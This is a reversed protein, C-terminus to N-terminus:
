AVYIPIMRWWWFQRTTAACRRRIARMDMKLGLEAAPLEITPLYISFLTGQGEESEVGIYGHHQGIIGHVMSLGLGTGKGIEKTTFFPEFIHSQTQEDMGLFFLSLPLHRQRAM